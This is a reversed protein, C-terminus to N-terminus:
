ITNFLISQNSDVAFCWGVLQVSHSVTLPLRLTQDDAVGGRGESLKLADGDDDDDDTEGGKWTKQM